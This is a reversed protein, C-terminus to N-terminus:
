IGPSPTLIPDFVFPSVGVLHLRNANPHNGIYETLHGGPMWESVLQLPSTTIGLLPVINKHNLRKWM